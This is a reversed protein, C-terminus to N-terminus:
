RELASTVQDARNTFVWDIGRSVERYLSFKSDVFGVGVQQGAQRLREIKRNTLLLYHGLVGGYQKTLSIDCFAAVNNQIPVLLLSERPFPILQEFLAAELSLLHYDKVPTLASLVEGLGEVQNFPVKLEIFLHLKRGYRSVVEDLRPVEPALQQLAKYSLEAIVAPSGWIRQLTPDHHVVLVGDATTQIDLEIGWCGLREAREFARHTNEWITQAHWHAGRHAIVKTKQLRKEDPKSRPIIAGLTNVSKEIFDIIM